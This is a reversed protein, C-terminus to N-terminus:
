KDNKQHKVYFDRVAVSKPDLNTLGFEEAWGMAEIYEEATISRQIKTYEFAKYAVHYQHMINM